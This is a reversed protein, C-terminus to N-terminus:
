GLLAQFRQDNRLHSWALDGKAWHILIPDLSIAEKLLEFARDASDTVAEIGGLRVLAAPRNTALLSQLRGMADALENSVASPGELYARTVALNYIAQWNEPDKALTQRYNEMAEDYRGLRSLMEGRMNPWGKAFTSDRAAIQEMDALADEYREYVIHLVSRVSLALIIEPAQELAHSIEELAEDYRSEYMLALSRIVRAMTMKPDLALVQDMAVVTEEFQKM